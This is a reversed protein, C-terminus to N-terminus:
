SNIQRGKFIASPAPSANATLQLIDNLEAQCRACEALHARFSAAEAPSLEGDAFAHVDDHTSM